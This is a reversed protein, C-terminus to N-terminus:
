PDQRLELAAATAVAGSSRRSGVVGVAVKKKGEGRQRWPWPGGGYNEQGAVEETARELPTM